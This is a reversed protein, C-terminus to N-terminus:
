LIVPFKDVSWYKTIERNDGYRLHDSQLGVVIFFQYKRGECNFSARYPTDFRLLERRISNISLRLQRVECCCNKNTNSWNITKEKHYFPTNPVLLRQHLSKISTSPQFKIVRLSYCSLSRDLLISARHDGKQSDGIQKFSNLRFLHFFINKEMEIFNSIYFYFDM